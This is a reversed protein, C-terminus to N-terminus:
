PITLSAPPFPPSHRPDFVSTQEVDEFVLSDHMPAHARKLDAARECAQSTSVEDLIAPKGDMAAQKGFTTIDCLVEDFGRCIPSRRCTHDFSYYARQYRLPGYPYRLPGYTLRLWDLPAAKGVLLLAEETARFPYVVFPTATRKPLEAAFSGSAIGTILCAALSSVQGSKADKM